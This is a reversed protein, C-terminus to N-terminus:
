HKFHRYGTFVMAVGHKDAAAIVEDDKVSGGPQIAAKVGANAAAELGDPFPFFADSALVAGTARAAAKKVAIEVSDVRSMQGAGVGVIQTGQAFVIANSKVHKCVRMAFKLAAMEADTPARKTVIKLNAWEDAIRDRDQVLMGGPICRVDRARAGGRFDEFPGTELLIVQQGWKKRTTLIQIAAETILPAVIADVKPHSMIEEAVREDLKRNLGVIGGFASLPDGEYAKRYAELVDGATAAGCPNTHKIVAAAPEDFDKVIELAASLDLINNFSLEKGSRQRADALNPEGCGPIAYFAAQQHPNEGYRLGQFLAGQLHFTKQPGSEGLGEMYACIAADYRSTTAFVKAALERRTERRTEGAGERLESLVRPYDDPECVVTVAEWNKAASRLMSPGGIDIQEIADEVSVNPDAVTKEFPYLNVAVLDIAVIGHQAAQARHADLDRRYLLGGHVNPHLTKVRGDLMEPFGTVESVDLVKLGADRLAKATGGTSILEFHQQVLGEAFAVVGSKDFVSILARRTKPM